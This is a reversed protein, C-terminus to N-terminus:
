LHALCSKGLIHHKSVLFLPFSLLWRTVSPQFLTSWTLAELVLVGYYGNVLTQDIGLTLLAKILKGLFNAKTYSLRFGAWENNKPGVNAPRGRRAVQKGHM